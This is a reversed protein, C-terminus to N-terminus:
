YMGEDFDAAVEEVDRILKEIRSTREENMPPEIRTQMIIHLLSLSTTLLFIFVVLCLHQSSLIM